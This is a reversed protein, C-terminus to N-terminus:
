MFHTGLNLLLFYFIKRSNGDEVTQKFGQKFIRVFSQSAEHISRSTLNYLPAGTPSYGVFYGRAGSKNGSTFNLTALIPFTVVIQSASFTKTTIFYRSLLSICRLCRWTLNSSRRATFNSGARSKWKWPWLGRISDLAIGAHFGRCLHESNGSEVNKRQRKKEGRGTRPLLWWGQVRTGRVVSHPLLVLLLAFMELIANWTLQRPSLNNQNVFWTILIIFLGHLSCRHLSWLVSHTSVGQGALQWAWEEEMGISEPPQFWCFHSCYSVERFIFNTKLDM